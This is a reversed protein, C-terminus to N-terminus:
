IHILSLDYEEARPLKEALVGPAGMGAIFVVNADDPVEEVDVLPVPGFRRIADRALLTGIYPDGGGGSGFITSGFTIDNLAQEDILRM